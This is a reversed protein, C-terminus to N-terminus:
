TRPVCTANIEWVARDRAFTWDYSRWELVLNTIVPDQKDPRKQAEVLVAEFLEMDVPTQGVIFRDYEDWEYIEPSDEGAEDVVFTKNAVDAVLLVDADRMAGLLYGMEAESTVARGIDAWYMTVTPKADKGTVVMDDDDLVARPLLYDWFNVAGASEAVAGTAPNRSTATSTTNPFILNYDVETSEETPHELARPDSDPDTDREPLLRAIRGDHADRVGDGNM